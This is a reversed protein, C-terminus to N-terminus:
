PSPLLAPIRGTLRYTLLGVWERTALDVRRLGDSPRDFPRALDAPGRTRYDVPWAAVDLGATRFCGVARPLHFASTLLYWKRATLDSRSAIIEASFRANEMTNRSKDELVVRDAPLGLRELLAATGVAESGTEYFMAASGGSLLVVSSPYKRAFALAETVREGAENLATTHRARTIISDEAGGLVILGIPQGSDAVEVRPFRDELPIILANGLPSLACIALLVFAILVMVSGLRGWPTWLLVAGLLGAILLLSTPQVILWFIKSLYFFVLRRM